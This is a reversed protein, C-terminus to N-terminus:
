RRDSGCSGSGRTIGSSATWTASSRQRTARTSARPSGTRPGARTSGAIRRARRTREWRRRTVLAPVGAEITAAAVRASGEVNVRRLAAEDRSPQIAWALHVVADAGSFLGVLDDEAVDATAWEVKPVELQPRRRAVGLVSQVRDDESLVRVLSTGVNGTAGVVVVRM